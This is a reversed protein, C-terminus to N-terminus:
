VDGKMGRIVRKYYFDIKKFFLPHYPFSSPLIKLMEELVNLKGCRGRM